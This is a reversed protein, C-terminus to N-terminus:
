AYGVVAATHPADMRFGKPDEENCGLRQPFASPPLSLTPQYGEWCASFGQTGEGGAGRLVVGVGGGVVVGFGRWFV